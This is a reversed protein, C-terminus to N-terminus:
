RRQKYLEEALAVLTARRAADDGADFKLFDSGHMGGEGPGEVRVGGGGHEVRVALPNNILPHRQIPPQRDLRPRLEVMLWATLENQEFTVAAVTVRVPIPLKSTLRIDALGTLRILHQLVPHVINQAYTLVAVNVRVSGLDRVPHRPRVRM